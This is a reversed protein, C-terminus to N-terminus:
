LNHEITHTQNFDRGNKQIWNKAIYQESEPFTPLDKNYADM